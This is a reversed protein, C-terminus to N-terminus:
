REVHGKPHPPPTPLPASTPDPNSSSSACASIAISIVILALLKARQRLGWAGASTSPGSQETSILQERNMKFDGKETSHMRTIKALYMRTAIEAM